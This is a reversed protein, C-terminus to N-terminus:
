LNKKQRAELQEVEFKLVSAKMLPAEKGTLNFYRQKLDELSNKRPTTKTKTYPRKLKTESVPLLEEETETYIQEPKTEEVVLEVPQRKQKKPKIFEKEQEPEVKTIKAYPKPSIPSFLYSLLKEDLPYKLGVEKQVQKELEFPIKSKIPEGLTRAQTPITVPIPIAEEQRRYTPYTNPASQYIPTIYSSSTIKTPISPKRAATSKGKNINVIVTQSQKQQKQKQKQKIVKKKGKKIPM